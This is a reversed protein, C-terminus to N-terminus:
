SQPDPSRESPYTCHNEVGDQKDPTFVVSKAKLVIHHNLITEGLCGPFSKRISTKGGYGILFSVSDNLHGQHHKLSM